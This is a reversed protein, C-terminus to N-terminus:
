KNSLISGLSLHARHGKQLCLVGRSMWICSTTIGIFLITSSGDDLIEQHHCNKDILCLEGKQFVYERGLIKQHYEGDIVYFLELYEHSHMQTRM